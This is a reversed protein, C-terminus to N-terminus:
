SRITLLHEFHTPWTHKMHNHIICFFELKVHVLIVHVLIAHVLIVHVIIVHVLIVHVRIVHVLIVHVLICHVLIFHVLIVHVLIVHVLIFHVLIVHVLIFHVLICHVLIFHVLIFHVLIFHVLIFHVLGQQQLYSQIAGSKTRKEGFHYDSKMTLENYKHDTSLKANNILVPKNWIPKSRSKILRIVTVWIDSFQRHGLM